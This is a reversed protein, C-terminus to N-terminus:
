KHIMEFRKTPDIRSVAKTLELRENYLHFVLVTQYNTM